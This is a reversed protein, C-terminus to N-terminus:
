VLFQDHQRLFETMEEPSLERGSAALEALGEFYTERPAGPTFLILMSAPAGSENRFAHIGGAPVFHFHGPTADIWDRGDYLRVTGDLVYFSETFSRHFHPTAGGPPGAMEWRFLGFDGGTSAGTALYHIDTAPRVLDPPADAARGTASIQGGDGLYRPEPYSM